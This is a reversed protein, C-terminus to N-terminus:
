RLDFSLRVMNVLDIIQLPLVVYDTLNSLNERDKGVNVVAKNVAILVQFYLSHSPLLNGLHFIPM